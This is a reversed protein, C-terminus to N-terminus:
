EVGGHEGTEGQAEEEPWNGNTRLDKIDRSDKDIQLSIRRENEGQGSAFEVRQLAREDGAAYEVKHAQALTVQEAEVWLAVTLLVDGLRIPGDATDVTVTGPYPFGVTRFVPPAAKPVDAFADVTQQTQHWLDNLSWRTDLETNRFIPAFPDTDSPLVLDVDRPSPVTWEATQFGRIGVRAIASARHWFLVFDLRLLDNLDVTAVERLSRLDIGNLAAVAKAEATFGSLSVAITRDAGIACKKTALQEIWTVDQVKARRRCEITVLVDSTGVRSRISADVERLRGTVKCRIRDPSAVVIGRPGADAEIRAILREFERWEPDQRDIGGM